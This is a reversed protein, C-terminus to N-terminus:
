LMKVKIIIYLFHLVSFLLISILVISAYKKWKPVGAKVPPNLKSEEYKKLREEDTDAFYEKYVWNVVGIIAGLILIVIIQEM